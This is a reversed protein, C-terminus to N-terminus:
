RVAGRLIEAFDTAPPVSTGRPGQGVDGATRRAALHPKEAALKKAAETAKDPDTLGDDGELDAADVYRLLDAPEALIGAASQAVTLATNRAVLADGRQIAERESVRRAAAEDRLTKVYEAPFRGDNDPEPATSETPADTPAAPPPGGEPPASPEPPTTAPM